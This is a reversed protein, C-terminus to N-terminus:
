STSAAVFLPGWEDSYRTTSSIPWRIQAPLRGRLVSWVSFGSRRRPPLYFLPDFKWRPACLVPNDAVQDIEARSRPHLACGTKGAGERRSPSISAFRPRVADRSRLRVSLRWRGAQGPSGTDWLCKHRFRYAAAYQITRDLRVIVAFPASV